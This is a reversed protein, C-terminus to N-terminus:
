TAVRTHLLRCMHTTTVQGRPGPNPIGGDPEKSVLADPGGRDAVDRLGRGDRRPQQPVVEPGLVAQPIGAVLEREGPHRDDPGLHRRAAAHGIGGEDGRHM